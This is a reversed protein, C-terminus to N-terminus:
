AAIGLLQDKLTPNGALEDSAGDFAVKGNVLVYVWDALAIVEDAHHEVILLSSRTSITRVAAKVEAVVAPALGEYPEDLLILQSPVMLARAIAVMQREGGSLNQAKSRTLVRLRPFLDHIEELSAGGSRAALALNENVTLNPFLRRGEPVISIGARNILDPRLNGIDRGGFLIQGRKPHITGMITKLTTTKGVGNRGLLAVVQNERIVMDVGELVTGGGYGASVDKLELLPEAATRDTSAAKASGAPVTESSGSGMYAEIVAPDRAVRAPEGDAILRGEHLVTIRDSMAIVRDIDHEILVVPHTTSLKKILDSVVIRDSEGLGALPEDLLLIEAKGALTVAIELLRIEGHPLETCPRSARDLLGVADLISWTEECIAADSHADRWFAITGKRGAQVAMRVNEFATLNPFVSIIQFSRAIGLRARKHTSLATIDKGRFLIQGGDPRQLGTLLNFFTTKGAGNPGIVSHLTREHFALSIDKQTVISGFSKSLKRVELVAAGAERSEGTRATFPQISSPMPPVTNRTLTWHDRKFLKLFIGQMGEPSLIAFIIIIPAFYLWWNDTIVSLQEELLLFTIAGWLPGLFHHVGGLAAMLVPDGARQWNMNDAYAGQLLLALLGGAIGVITAGIAFGIWKIAFTNYGLTMARQENDRVAQMTRGFPIHALRWMGAILLIVLAVTFWHFSLADTFLPRPVGQIGNEGGTLDTWQFAVEYGVQSLALTILAFYVGTRHLIVAGLLVAAVLSFAAAFLLAVIENNVVPGFLSIAVAYSACGFFVSAGFPVLGIYGIMLNVGMAYLVYITIKTTYTIADGEWLTFLSLALLVLTSVLVPHKLVAPMKM